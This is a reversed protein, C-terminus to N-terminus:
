VWKTIVKLKTVRKWPYIAGVRGCRLTFFPGMGHMQSGFIRSESLTNHPALFTCAQSAM